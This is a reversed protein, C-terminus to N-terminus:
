RFEYQILPNKKYEFFSKPYNEIFWVMMATLNIQNSMMANSKNMWISKLNPKEILEIAKSISSEQDNLSESYNYVLDYRRELEKTYSIISNNVFIAPTGILGCEAAM